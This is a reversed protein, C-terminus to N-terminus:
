FRRGGLEPERGASSPHSSGGHTSCHLFTSEKQIRVSFNITQCENKREHKTASCILSVFNESRRDATFSHSLQDAKKKKKKLKKFIYIYILRRRPALKADVDADCHLM